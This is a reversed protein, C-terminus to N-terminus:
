TGGVTIDNILLSPSDTGTEIELDSAAVCDSFMQEFNGAVTIENVPRTIEGNEILFGAAGQSYNGTVLNLGRGLVETVYVGNKVIKLLDDFSTTGNEAHVNNSAIGDFGSAHATSKLKLMNAYRTNLLFSNLVGNKILPLDSCELGESDFPRSRLGRRVGCSDIVGFGECFIKRSL